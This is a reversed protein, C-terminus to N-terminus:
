GPAPRLECMTEAVVRAFLPLTMDTRLINAFLLVIARQAPMAWFWTGYIGYWGFGGVPLAVRGPAEPTAVALSFGWRFGFATMAGLQNRTMANVSARSLIPDGGDLLAQSFRAYDGITTHLGGGGSLHRAERAFPDAPVPRITGNAKRYRSVVSLREEPPVFFYTRRMQLPAFIARAVYQDLPVNAVVEVIRGLVDSSLGYTWRTGPDHALPLAGLRKIKEALLLRSDYVVGAKEYIAGIVPDIEVHGHHIGATHTLLDRVTVERRAPRTSMRGTKVDYRVLVRPSRFEPLYASVPDELRVAGTRCLQLIAVAVVPKTLSAVPFIDDPTVVVDGELHKLGFAQEHVVRGHARVHLVAGPIERRAVADRVIAEARGFGGTSLSATEAPSTRLAGLALPWLGRLFRRRLIV